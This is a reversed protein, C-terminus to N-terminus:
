DANEQESVTQCFHLRLDRKFFRWECCSAPASCCTKVQRCTEGAPTLYWVTHTHTHQKLSAQGRHHRIGMRCGLQIGGQLGLREEWRRWVCKLACLCVWVCCNQRTRELVCEREKAWPTVWLSMHSSCMSSTVYSFAFPRTLACNTKNLLHQM